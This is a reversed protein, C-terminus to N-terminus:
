EIVTLLFSLVDEDQDLPSKTLDYDVSHQGQTKELFRDMDSKEGLRAGYFCTDRVFLRVSSGIGMRVDFVFCNDSNKAARLVHELTPSIGLVEVVDVNVLEEFAGDKGMLDLQPDGGTDHAAIIKYVPDFQGTIPLQVECGFKLELLDPCHKNLRSRLEKSKEQKTM